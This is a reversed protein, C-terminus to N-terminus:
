RYKTRVRAAAGQGYIADFQADSGQGSLLMRAHGADVPKSNSPSATTGGSPSSGSGRQLISTYDAIADQAIQWIEKYAQARGAASRTRDPMTAAALRAEYDSQSGIGPIRTIAGVTARVNSLLTDYADTDGGAFAGPVRGGVVGGYIGDHGVSRGGSLRAGEPDLNQMQVIQAALRQAQSLGKEVANRQQATLPKENAGIRTQNGAILTRTGRTTSQTGVTRELRGVVADGYASTKPGWLRRDPGGHYYMAASRPDGGTADLAEQAYAIGLKRQYALGEESQSRMLDPRWEVGIKAAVGRATGPLMQSAGEARGYRTQPGVVGARGGSEQPEIASMYLQEATIPGGTYGQSSTGGVETLTNGFPTNLYQPARFLESGGRTVLSGGVVVPNNANIRDTEAGYRKTEGDIAAQNDSVRDHASYGLGTIASLNDDTPDFADIDQAHYGMALLTPKAAQIAAARQEVPLAAIGRVVEGFAGAGKSHQDYGQQQLKAFGEGAKDDGVAYAQAAAGNLDGTRLLDTVRSRYENQRQIAAQEQQFKAQAIQRSQAAAMGQQFSDGIDTARPANALLDIWNAM